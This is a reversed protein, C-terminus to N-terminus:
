PVSAAQRPYAAGFVQRHAIPQRAFRRKIHPKDPYINGTEIYAIDFGSRLLIEGLREPTTPNCHSLDKIREKYTAGTALLLGADLLSAYARALRAFRAPGLPRFPLLPWSLLDRSFFLYDFQLPFSYFILTGRPSMERRIARLMSGLQDDHLHEFIDFCVVIDLARDALKRWDAVDGQYFEVSAGEERCLARAIDLAAGDFDVGAARYGRLAFEIAMTGVSCGVDLVSIDAIARGALRPLAWREVLEHALAIRDRWRNSARARHKEVQELQYAEGYPFAADGSSKVSM